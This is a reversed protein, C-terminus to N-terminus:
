DKHKFQSKWARLFRFLLGQWLHIYGLGLNALRWYNNQLSIQAEKREITVVKGLISDNSIPPDLHRLGDGKTICTDPGRGVLRHTIFEGRKRIVVLDGVRLSKPLAKEVLVKDGPKLMPLMSCSIVELKISRDTESSLWALDRAIQAYLRGGKGTHSANNVNSKSDGIM